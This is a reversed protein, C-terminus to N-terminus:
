VSIYVHSYEGPSTNGQESDLWRREEETLFSVSDSDPFPTPTQRQPSSPSLSM